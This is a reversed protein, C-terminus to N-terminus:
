AGRVVELVGGGRARWESANSPRETPGLFSPPSLSLPWASHDRRYCRIVNMLDILAPWWLPLGPTLGGDGASRHGVCLVDEWSWGRSWRSLECAFMWGCFARGLLFSSGSSRFIIKLLCFSLYESARRLLLSPLGSYIHPKVCLFRGPTESKLPSINLSVGSQHQGRYNILLGNFICYPLQIMIMDVCDRHGCRNIWCSVSPSMLGPRSGADQFPWSWGKRESHFRPPLFVCCFISPSRSRPDCPQDSQNGTHRSHFCASM